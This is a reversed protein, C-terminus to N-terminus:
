KRPDAKKPRTETFKTPIPTVSIVQSLNVWADPYNYGKTLIWGNAGLSRIEYDHVENGVLLFEYRANAKLGLMACLKLHGTLKKPPPLTLVAPNETAQHQATLTAQLAFLAALISRTTKTYTKM